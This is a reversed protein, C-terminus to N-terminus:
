EPFVKYEWLDNNKWKEYNYKSGEGGWNESNYRKLQCKLPKVM